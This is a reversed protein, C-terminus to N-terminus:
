AADARWQGLFGPQPWKRLNFGKRELQRVVRRRQRANGSLGCCSWADGYIAM